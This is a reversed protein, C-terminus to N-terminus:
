NCEFPARTERMIEVFHGGSQPRAFIGPNIDIVSRDSVKADTEAIDIQTCKAIQWPTVLGCHTLVDRKLYIYSVDNIECNSKNM